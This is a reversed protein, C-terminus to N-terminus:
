VPRGVKIDAIITIKDEPPGHWLVSAVIFAWERFERAMQRPTGTLEFHRYDIKGKRKLLTSLKLEDRALAAECVIRADVDKRVIKAKKAAENLEEYLCGCSKKRAAALKDQRATCV